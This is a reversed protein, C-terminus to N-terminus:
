LGKSPCSDRDRAATLMLLLRPPENLAGREGARFDMPLLALSLSRKERGSSLASQDLRLNMECFVEVDLNDCRVYQSHARTHFSALEPSLQGL